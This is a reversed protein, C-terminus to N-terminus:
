ESKKNKYRRMLEDFRTEILKNQADIIIRTLQKDFQEFNIKGTELQQLSRKPEETNTNFKGAVEVMLKANRIEDSSAGYVRLKNMKIQSNYEEIEEPTLGHGHDYVDSIGVKNGMLWEKFDKDEIARKLGKNANHRLM